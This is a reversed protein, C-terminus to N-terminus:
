TCYSNDCFKTIKYYNSAQACNTSNLNIQYSSQAAARQPKPPLLHCRLNLLRVVQLLQVEVVNLRM